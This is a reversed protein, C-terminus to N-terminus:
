EPTVEDETDGHLYAMADAAAQATAQKAAENITIDAQVPADLGLVKAVRENIKILRDLAALRPGVDRVYQGDEDVIPRGNSYAPPLPADLLDGATRALVDLVDLHRSKAAALDTAPISAQIAQIIQSVRTQAIGHEAALAEQTSGLLYARYISGDRGELRRTRDAM